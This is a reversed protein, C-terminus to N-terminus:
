ELDVGTSSVDYGLKSLAMVIEELGLIIERNNEPDRFYIMENQPNYRLFVKDKLKIAEENYFSLGCPHARELLTETIAEQIEECTPCDDETCEDCNRLRLIYSEIQKRTLETRNRYINNIIDLDRNVKKIWDELEEFESSITNITNTAGFLNSKVGDISTKSKM